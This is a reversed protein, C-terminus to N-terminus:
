CCETRNVPLECSSDGKFLM